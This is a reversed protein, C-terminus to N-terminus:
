RLPACAHSLQPQLASLLLIEGFRRLVVINAQTLFFAAGATTVASMSCPAGVEGLATRVRWCRVQADSTHTQKNTQKNKTHMTCPPLHSISLPPLSIISFNISVRVDSATSLECMTNSHCRQKVCVCVCVCMCRTSSLTVFQGLSALPPPRM